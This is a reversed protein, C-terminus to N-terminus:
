PTQVEMRGPETDHGVNLLYYRTVGEQRGYDPAATAHPARLLHAGWFPLIIAAALGVAVISRRVM